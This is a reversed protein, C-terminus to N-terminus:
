YGNRLSEVHRGVMKISPLGGEIMMTVPAQGSFITGTNSQRPWDNKLPGNFLENLNKYVGILLSARTVQGVSFEDEFTGAEINKWAEHTVDFLSTAEVDSLLWADSIKVLAKAIAQVHSTESIAIFSSRQQIPPKVQSM